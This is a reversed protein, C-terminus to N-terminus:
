ILHVCFFLIFHWILWENLPPLFELVSCHKLEFNYNVAHNLDRFRLPLRFTFDLLYSTLPVKEATSSSAQLQGNREELRKQLTCIEAEM